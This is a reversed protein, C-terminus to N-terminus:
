ALKRDENQVHSPDVHQGYSPTPSDWPIDIGLSKAVAVASMLGDEHFGYRTWAGCFYLNNKGQLAPLLGQAKIAKDDFVPHDYFYEGQVLDPKPTVTPNLTVLVPMKTPLSQLRNM